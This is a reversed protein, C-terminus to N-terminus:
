YLSPLTTVRNSVTVQKARKAEREHCADIVAVPASMEMTSRTLGAAM